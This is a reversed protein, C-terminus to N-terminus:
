RTLAAPIQARSEIHLKRFTNALHTEVTKQTIFLRQAIQRNTQGSGALGAIRLESPTLTDRGSAPPRRPRAGAALLEALARDQLSRAGCQHALALGEELPERAATRRNARREAAGLEVLSLALELQGPSDRALRVSEHLLATGGPGGTTLGPVRLARALPRHAGWGSALAAHRDALVRAEERHGLLLLAQALYVRWPALDPNQAGIAEWRGGVARIQDIGERIQGCAVKAIGGALRAEYFHVTDPLPRDLGLRRLVQLAAPGDGRDALM